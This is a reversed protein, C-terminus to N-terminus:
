EQYYPDDFMAAREFKESLCRTPCVMCIETQSEWAKAAVILLRDVLRDGINPFFSEIEKYGLRVQRINGAARDLIQDQMSKSYHICFKGIAAM